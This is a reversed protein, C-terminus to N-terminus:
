GGYGVGNDFMRDMAALREADREQWPSEHARRWGEAVYIRMAERDVGVVEDESLRTVVSGNRLVYEGPEPYVSLLEQYCGSFHAEEEYVAVTGSGCMCDLRYQRDLKTRNQAKRAWNAGYDLRRMEAIKEVWPGEAVIYRERRYAAIVPVVIKGFETEVAYTGEGVRRLNVFELPGGDIGEPSDVRVVWGVMLELARETVPEM